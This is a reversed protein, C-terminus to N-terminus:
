YGVSQSVILHYDGNLGLLKLLADERGAGERVVTKLGHLAAYLYINQSIYSADITAAFKCKLNDSYNEKARESPHEKLYKFDAIMVISISADKVFDQFGTAELFDGDKVFILTNQDADYKYIAKKTFVFLTDRFVYGNSTSPVTKGSPFADQFYHDRKGNNGYAAWLLESLTQLPIEKGEYSRSSKRESFAKMLEDDIKPAPLAIDQTM